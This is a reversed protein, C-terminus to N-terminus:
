DCLLPRSVNIRACVKNKPWERRSQRPLVVDDNQGLASFCNRPKPVSCVLLTPPQPIPLSRSRAPRARNHRRHLHELARRRVVSDTWPLQKAFPPGSRSERDIAEVPQSAAFELKRIRRWCSSCALWVSGVSQIASQFRAHGLSHPVPPM